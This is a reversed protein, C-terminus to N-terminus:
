GDDSESSPEAPSKGQGSPRAGSVIARRLEIGVAEAMQFKTRAVHLQAESMLKKSLKARLENLVQDVCWLCRGREEKVAFEAAAILKNRLSM